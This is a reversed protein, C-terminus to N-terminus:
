GRIEGSDPQKAEKHAIKAFLQELRDREEVDCDIRLVLDPTYRLNLSRALCTRFFGKAKKLGREVDGRKTRGIIEFYINALKLDATMTVASVRVDQLRPDRVKQLLVLTLENKIAEGVRQPRTSPARGLGPLTFDFQEM